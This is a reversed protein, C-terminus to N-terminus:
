NNFETSLFENTREGNKIMRVEEVGLQQLRLAVSNFHPMIEELAYEANGSQVRGSPLQKYAFTVENITVPRIWNLWNDDLVLAFGEPELLKNEEVLSHHRWRAYGVDLALVVGVLLLVVVFARKIASM